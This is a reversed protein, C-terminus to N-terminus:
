KQNILIEITVEIYLDKLDEIKLRAGLEIGTKKFLFNIADPNNKEISYLILAYVSKEKRYLGTFNYNEALDIKKNTILSKFSEEDDVKFFM